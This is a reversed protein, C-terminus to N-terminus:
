WQSLWQDGSIPFMDAPAIGTLWAFRDIPYQAQVTLGLKQYLKLLGKVFSIVNETKTLKKVANYPRICHSSNGKTLCLRPSINEV